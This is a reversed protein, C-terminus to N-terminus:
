EERREEREDGRKRGQGKAGGKGRWEGGGGGGGETLTVDLAFHIPITDDHVQSDNVDKLAVPESLLHFM